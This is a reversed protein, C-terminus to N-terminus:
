EKELEVLIIQPRNNVRLPCLSNGIGRSVVMNTGKAFHVGSTYKPFFGQNPAILGGIFPIQVQGGHAHGTLVIDAGVDVYSYFAEPRHSIVITPSEAGQMLAELKDKIIIKVKERSDKKKIVFMPDEVGIITYATGDKEFVTSEDQLVTIGLREFEECLRAYEEPMRSEHNGPAYFCPAIKVLETAFDFAKKLSTHRSDIFDGSIAIIDPSAEQILRLPEENNNKFSANHFDSIHIIKLKAKSKISVRELMIAKNSWIIWALLAIFGLALCLLVISLAINDKIFEIM